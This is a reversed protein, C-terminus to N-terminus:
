LGLIFVVSNESENYAPECTYYDDMSEDNDHKGVLEANDPVDALWEKLEKATM